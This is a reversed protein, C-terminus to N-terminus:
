TGNKQHYTCLIATWQYFTTNDNFTTNHACHVPARKAFTLFNGNQSWFPYFSFNFKKNRKHKWQYQRSIAKKVDQVM